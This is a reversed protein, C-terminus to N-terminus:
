RWNLEGPLPGCIFEARLGRAIARCCNNNLRLQQRRLGLGERFRNMSANFTLRGKSVLELVTGSISVTSQAAQHHGIKLPSVSNYKLSKLWNAIGLLVKQNDRM